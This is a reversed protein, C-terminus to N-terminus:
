FHSKYFISNLYKWNCANFLANAQIMIMFIYDMLFM